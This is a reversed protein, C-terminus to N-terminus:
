SSFKVMAASANWVDTCYACYAKGATSSNCEKTPHHGTFKYCLPGVKCLAQTHVFGQCEFCQTAGQHKKSRETTRLECQSIVGNFIVANGAGPDQLSIFLSSFPKNTAISNTNAWRISELSDLTNGNEFQFSLIRSKNSIDFLTPVGHVMITHLKSEIKLHINLNDIWVDAAVSVHDAQDQTEFIVVLDATKHVREFAKIRPAGPPIAM